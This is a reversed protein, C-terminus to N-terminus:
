ECKQKDYDCDIGSGGCDITGTKSCTSTPVGSKDCIQFRKDISGCGTKTSCNDQMNGRCNKCTESGTVAIMAKGSLEKPAATSWVVLLGLILSCVFCLRSVSLAKM